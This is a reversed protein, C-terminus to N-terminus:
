RGGDLDPNGVEFAEKNDHNDSMDKGNLKDKLDSLKKKLADCTEKASPLKKRLEDYLKLLIVFKERLHTIHQAHQEQWGNLVKRLENASSVTNILSKAIENWEKRITSEEGDIKGTLIDIVADCENILQTGLGRCKMEIDLVNQQHKEDEGLIEVLAPFVIGRQMSSFPSEPEALLNLMSDCLDIGISLNKVLPNKDGSKIILEGCVKSTNGLIEIFRDIADTEKTLSIDQHLNTLERTDIQSTTSDKASHDAAGIFSIIFLALTTLLFDM